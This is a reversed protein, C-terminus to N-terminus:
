KNLILLNAEANQLADVIRKRTESKIGMQFISSEGNETIDIRILSDKNQIYETIVSIELYDTPITGCYEKLIVDNNMLVDGM